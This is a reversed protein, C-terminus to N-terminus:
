RSFLCIQTIKKYIGPM